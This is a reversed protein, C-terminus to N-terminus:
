MIKILANYPDPESKVKKKSASKESGTSTKGIESLGGGIVSTSADSLLFDIATRIEAITYADGKAKTPHLVQLHTDLRTRVSDPFAASLIDHDALSKATTAFERHYQTLLQTNSVGEKAHKVVIKKLDEITAEPLKEAGPYHSLVEKKMRNDNGTIGAEHPITEYEEFFTPLQEEYQSDWKPAKRESHSLLPTTTTAM